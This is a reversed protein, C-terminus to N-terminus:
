VDAVGLEQAAAIEKDIWYLVADRLAYDCYVITPDGDPDVARDAVRPFGGKMGSLRTGSSLTPAGMVFARAQQLGSIYDRLSAPAPDPM